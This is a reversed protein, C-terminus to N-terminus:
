ICSCHTTQFHRYGFVFNTRRVEWFLSPRLSMAASADFM